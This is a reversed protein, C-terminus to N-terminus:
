GASTTMEILGHLDALTNAESAPKDKRWRLIRPFRVAVGSKHRKSPNIGEFALEFVQVPQVSSVPGFQEKTNKRVWATIEGMEKDTLGSYAKAFPVLAEGDWVAFTYDSYLNARRGHGRQAYLMVADITMPDIKWKWWDGRKRGALYPSDLHKLMLGEAKHQRSTARVQALTKWDDADIVESLLIVGSTKLHDNYVLELLRRRERLPQNRIDEGNYELLDYAIMKVPTDALIKKTINKRGIRTQLQHFSLPQDSYPMIEGDLVYNDLGVAQLAEFEPFKSTILEEGRSWLFLEEQRMILQGRIGDWKREAQWESAPAITDFPVDLGYALYFPYPRSLLDAAQPSEILEEWSTTLPTWDGMLRHAMSAEDTKLHRALARTLLKQSVGIRWGGTILKNFIFREDSPLVDWASRIQQSVHDEDAGKLQYIYNIWYSLSHEQKDTDSTPLVLAITEALDGVIHYSEEFLWQPIGSVEYALTRLQATKVTRRPRRSTFLAIAWLKDSDDAVAFFDVMANVKETTKTTADVAKFLDSFHKM